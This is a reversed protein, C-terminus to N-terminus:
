GAIRDFSVWKPYGLNVLELVLVVTLVTLMTLEMQSWLDPGVGPVSPAM